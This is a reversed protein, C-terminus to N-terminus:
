NSHYSLLLLPFFGIECMGATLLGEQWTLAIALQKEGECGPFIGLSSGPTIFCGEKVDWPSGLSGGWQAIVLCSGREGWRCPEPPPKNFCLM